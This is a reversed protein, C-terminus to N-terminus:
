LLRGSTGIKPCIFGTCVKLGEKGIIWQLIKADVGIDELHDRGKLHKTHM